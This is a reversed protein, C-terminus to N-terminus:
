EDLEVNVDDIWIYGAEISYFRVFLFRTNSSTTLTDSYLNWDTVAPFYIQLPTTGTVYVQDYDLEQIYAKQSAASNSKAQFSINYDTGPTVPVIQEIRRGYQLAAGGLKVSASGSYYISTDCVAASYPDEWRNLNADFGPNLVLNTVEPLVPEVAELVFEDYWIYGAQICYGRVIVYETDSSTTFECSYKAWDSNASVGLYQVDVGSVYQKASDAEIVVANQSSNCASKAWFSFNYKTEPSVAVFQEVCRGYQLAAGGIKVSHTDNHYETSDRVASSYPDTWDNLNTDFDPNKIFNEVVDKLSFEDYWVYGAHICYGRIIVYATNSSTTFVCSQKTWDSNASVDFEQRDVGTLYQQSSDAEIVVVDEDSTCASKSWFSFSYKTDPSVAVVQQICRGYQLSAGGIKVSHTDDHYETSDRVAASYPDTWDNLSLSFDPNDILNETIDTTVLSNIYEEIWTYGSPALDNRDSADTYDLGKATEWSDPMGDSDTDAPATGTSYTPWGSVDDQSDIISGTLNRVSSVVRSDVSDRGPLTAGANDLVIDTIVETPYEIIGPFLLRYLSRMLENDDGNVINWDGQSNSTRGPGLNGKMFIESDTDVTDKIEVANTNSDDGEIYYNAIADSYLPDGDVASKYDLGVGGYNYVVNNIVVSHTDHQIQPNRYNNHAFLNHHISINNSAGVLMGMSHPGLPHISDYLGESIICWQVTIDSTTDYWIEVNEDTAWSLSCHDIVVNYVEGSSGISIADRNEASPTGTHDGPRIRLYRIVVDHTQVRISAGKICIGDGPATQGAITIYPNSIVIDGSSSLDIIGGTRFVVIRSGSAELAARLSGTGSANLNTVPIVIGGRGGQTQSGYGEAGPFAPLAFILNGCFMVLFSFILFLYIRM